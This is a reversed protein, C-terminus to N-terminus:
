VGREFFVEEFGDIDREGRLLARLRLAIEQAAVVVAITVAPPAWPAVLELRRNLISHRWALPDPLHLDLRVLREVHVSFQLHWLPTVAAHALLPLYKSPPM